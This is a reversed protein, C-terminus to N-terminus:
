IEMAEIVNGRNLAEDFTIEGQLIRFVMANDELRSGYTVYPINSYDRGEHALRRIPIASRFGEQNTSVVINDIRIATIEIAPNETM